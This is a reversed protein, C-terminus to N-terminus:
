LSRLNLKFNITSCNCVILFLSQITLKKNKINIIVPFSSSSFQFIQIQLFFYFNITFSNLFYFVVKLLCFKRKNYYKHYFHIFLFYSLFYKTSLCIIVILINPLCNNQFLFYNNIKKIFVHIRFYYLLIFIFSIIHYQISM